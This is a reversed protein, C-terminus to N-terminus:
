EAAPPVAEAVKSVVEPSIKMPSDSDLLDTRPAQEVVGAFLLLGLGGEFGALGSSM